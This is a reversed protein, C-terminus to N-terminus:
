CAGYFLGVTEWLHISQGRSWRRPCLAPMCQALGCAGHGPLVGAQALRMPMMAPVWAAAPMGGHAKGVRKATRGAALDVSGQEMRARVGKLDHDKAGAAGPAIRRRKSEEGAAAGGEEREL